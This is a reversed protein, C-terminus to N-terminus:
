EDPEPVKAMGAVSWDVPTLEWGLIGGAAKCVQIAAECAVAAKDGVSAVQDRNCGGLPVSLALVVGFKWIMKM